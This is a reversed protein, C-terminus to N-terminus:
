AVAHPLALLVQPLLDACDCFMGTLVRLDAMRCVQGASLVPTAVLLNFCVACLCYHNAGLRFAAM